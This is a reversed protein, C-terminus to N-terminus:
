AFGPSVRVSLSGRLSVGGESVRFREASRNLPPFGRGRDLRLRADEEVLGALRDGEGEPGPHPPVSRGGMWLQVFFRRGELSRVTGGSKERTSDSGSSPGSLVLATNAWWGMQSPFFSLWNLRCNSKLTTSRQPSPLRMPARTSPAIVPSKRYFNVGCPM